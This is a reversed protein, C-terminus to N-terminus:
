KVCRVKRYAQDKDNIYMQGDYFYFCKAANTPNEGSSWYSYGAGTLDLGSILARQTNITGLEAITPLRMGMNACSKKAGAWANAACYPNSALNNDYTTDSCTNIASYATDSAAVCLSGVKVGDCTSLTVNVTGIDKGMVNPSGLGNIDYLFSMCGTTNTQNDTPDIRDCAGSVKTSDRLTFLVSTGNALMLAITNGSINNDGLQTGTTLTTTDIDQGSATKFKAPFCGVLTSSDCRKNIKMYKQFEDAFSANTTYGSLVDNSKMQNTAETIKLLTVDRSKGFAYDNMNKVLQPITIAAVVGIISLTILVEALTFASRKRM